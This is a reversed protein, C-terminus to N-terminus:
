ACRRVGGTAATRVPPALERVRAAARRLNSRRAGSARARDRALSVHSNTSLCCLPVCWRNSGHAGATRTRACAADCAPPLQKARGLRARVRAISM